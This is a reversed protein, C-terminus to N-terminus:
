KDGETFSDYKAEMMADYHADSMRDSEDAVYQLCADEMESLFESDDMDMLQRVSAMYMEEQVENVAGSHYKVEVIEVDEPEPPELQNGPYGKHYRFHVDVCVEADGDILVPWGEM